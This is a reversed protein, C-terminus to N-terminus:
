RPRDTVQRPAKTIILVSCCTEIHCSSHPREQLRIRDDLFESGAVADVSEADQDRDAAIFSARSSTQVEGADVTAPEESARQPSEEVGHVERGAALFPLIAWSGFFGPGSTELRRSM